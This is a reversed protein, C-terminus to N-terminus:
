YKVLKSLQIRNFLIKGAVQVKYRAARSQKWMTQPVWMQELMRRYIKEERSGQM